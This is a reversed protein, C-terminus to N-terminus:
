YAQKQGSSYKITQYGKPKQRPYMIPSHMHTALFRALRNLGHFAPANPCSSFQAYRTIAFGTEFRTVQQVHLFEGVLSHYSGGYKKELEVLDKGQAPLAEALAREYENDTRYPTDASKLRENNDPPFYKDVINTKIHQTQDISIGLDTQIIRINLYKLVIGTQATVPFLSDMFTMLDNFVYEKTFACLFDDTSTCVWLM